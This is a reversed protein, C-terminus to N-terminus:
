QTHWRTRASAPEGNDTARGCTDARHEQAPTAARTNRTSMRLRGDCAPSTWRRHREHLRFQVRRLRAVREPAPADRTGSLAASRMQRATRPRMDRPVPKNLVSLVHGQRACVHVHILVPRPQLHLRPGLEQPVQRLVAPRETHAGPARRQREPTMPRAPNEASRRPSSPASLKALFRASAAAAAAAAGEADAAAAPGALSAPPTAAPVGTATRPSPRPASHCHTGPRQPPAHVRCVTKNDSACTCRPCLTAVTAAAARARARRSVAGM